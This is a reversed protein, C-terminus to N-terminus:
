FRRDGARWLATPFREGAPARDFGAVQRGTADLVHVFATYDTAPTGLAEWLLRATLFQTEELFETEVRDLRIVGGFESGAEVAAPADLVPQTHPTVAVSGVFPTVAAGAADYAPLPLFAGRQGPAGETAPDIFGVYLRAALPAGSAVAGTVPLLYRDAYLAGPTWFTTPNRGWGPHTTLNAIEKGNEDLM